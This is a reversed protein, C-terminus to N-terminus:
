AKGGREILEKLLEVFQQVFRGLRLLRGLWQDIRELEQLAELYRILVRQELAFIFFGVEHLGQLRIRWWLDHQERALQLRPLRRQYFGSEHRQQIGFLVPM